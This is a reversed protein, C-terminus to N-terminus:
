RPGRVVVTGVALDHLGRGDGVSVIAPLVLAILATRASGRLLGVPRGDLRLVRLRLAWQGISAGTLGTALSTLVYWAILPLWVRGTAASWVGTGALMLAVLNAVAWDIVLALLRVAFGAVSGPGEAPLGLDQGRYHPREGIPSREDRTSV